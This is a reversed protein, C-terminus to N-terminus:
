IARDHTCVQVLHTPKQDLTDDDVDLLGALLMAEKVVVPIRPLDCSVLMASNQMAWLAMQAQWQNLTLDGEGILLQFPLRKLVANFYRQIRWGNM